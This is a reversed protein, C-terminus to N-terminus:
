GFPALLPNLHKERKSARSFKDITKLPNDKIQGQLALFKLLNKTKPM